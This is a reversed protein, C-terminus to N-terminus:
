GNGKDMGPSSHQRFVTNDRHAQEGLTIEFDETRAKVPQERNVCVFIIIVSKGIKDSPEVLYFGYSRIRLCGAHHLQM